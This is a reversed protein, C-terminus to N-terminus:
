IRDDFWKGKLSPFLSEMLERVKKGDNQNATEILEEVKSEDYNSDDTHTIYIGEYNTKETNEQDTLVEEVLKEGPLKGIERIEIDKGPELGHLRIMKEALDLIKVPEGMDLVFLEGGKGIAAAELVLAISEHVSMFYRVMRKDTITVPGGGSIQKEFIPVVSGSSGLVNGFRVSVFKTKGQGNLKKVIQEAIRKSAGMISTPNVAKDTSIMVFKDVGGEIAAEAVNRTGVVNNKIAEDENGEMLTVHKHAAAHFIIDPNYKKMLYVLKPKDRVSTIVMRKEVDPYKQDLERINEYLASENMDMMLLFEPKFKTIQKCLETGITGGAGTVLVTKGQILQTVVSQEVGIRESGILDTIQINRVRSMSISGDMLEYISPIRKYRVGAKECESVIRNIDKQSIISIAIIVYDINEKKSIESVLSSAGLVKKGEIEQDKKAPDDDLFGVLEHTESFKKTLEEALAKGADGAGIVLVRKKTM